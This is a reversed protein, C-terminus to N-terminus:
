ITILVKRLKFEIERINKRLTLLYYFFQFVLMGTELVIFIFTVIHIKTGFVLM